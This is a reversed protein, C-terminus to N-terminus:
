EEAAVQPTPHTGRAKLADREAKRADAEERAKAMVADRVRARRQVAEIRERAFNANTTEETM